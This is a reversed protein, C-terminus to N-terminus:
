TTLNKKLFFFLNVLIGTVAGSLHAIPVPITNKEFNVFVANNTKFEFIIKIIFLIFIINFFIINKKNKEKLNEFFLIGIFFIFLASDIGSLGRYYNLHPMFIFVSFTIIFSSLILCILSKKFEKKLSLFGITVFMIIDWLWHEFSLHTFHCTFLRWFEGKIIKERNYELIISISENQILIFTLIFILFLIFFSLYKKLISM